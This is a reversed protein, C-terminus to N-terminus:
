WLKIRLTKNSTWLNKVPNDLNSTCRVSNYNLVSTIPCRHCTHKQKVMVHASVNFRFWELRSYLYTVLNTATRSFLCTRVGQNRSLGKSSCSFHATCRLWLYNDTQRSVHVGTPYPACRTCSTNVLRTRRSITSISNCGPNGLRGLGSLDVNRRWGYWTTRSGCEKLAHTRTYIRTYTSHSIM